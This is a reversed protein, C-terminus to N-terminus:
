PDTGSGTYSGALSWTEPMLPEFGSLRKTEMSWRKDGPRHLRALHIVNELGLALSLEDNNFCAIIKDGLQHAKALGIIKSRGDVAGDKAEILWAAKSSRISACVKEFGHVLQGERRLLGMLALLRQRLLSHVLQALDDPIKVSRKASRAFAGKKIALGLSQRDCQVWLGRGPLKNALDPTLVGDPSVVFRLLLSSSLSRHSALDRRLPLSAGLAEDDIVLGDQDADALATEFPTSEPNILVAPENNLFPPKTM